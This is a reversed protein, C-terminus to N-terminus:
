ISLTVMNQLQSFKLVTLPNGYIKGQISLCTKYFILKANVDKEFAPGKRGVYSYGISINSVVNIYADRNEHRLVCRHSLHVQESTGRRVIQFINLWMERSSIKETKWFLIELLSRLSVSLFNLRVQPVRKMFSVYIERTELTKIGKESIFIRMHRFYM